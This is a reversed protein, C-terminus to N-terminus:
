HIGLAANSRSYSLIVRGVQMKGIGHNGSGIQAVLVGQTDQDIFTRLVDTDELGPANGKVEIGTALQGNALLTGVGSLADDVAMAIGRPQVHGTTQDLQGLCPGVDPHIVIPRQNVEHNVISIRDDADNAQVRQSRILETEVAGAGHNQCCAADALKEQVRGIGTRCCPISQSSRDPSSSRGAVQFEDLKMRSCQRFRIFTPTAEQNGFCNPPLAGDQARDVAFRKHFLGMGLAIQCRAIDYGLRNEALHELIIGVMDEKVDGVLRSIKQLAPKRHDIFRTELPTEVHGPIQQRNRGDLMIEHTTDIRIQVGPRCQFVKVGATFDSM